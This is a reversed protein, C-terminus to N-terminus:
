IPEPINSYDYVQQVPDTLICGSYDHHRGGYLIGNNQPNGLSNTGVFGVAESIQARVGPMLVPIAAALLLFLMATRLLMRLQSETKRTLM